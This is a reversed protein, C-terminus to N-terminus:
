EKWAGQERKRRKYGSAALVGVGTVGLALLSAMPAVDLSVGTASVAEASNTFALTQTQNSAVTVTKPTTATQGDTAVTEAAGNNISVTSSTRANGSLGTERVAVQSGAPIEALTVSQDHKLQVTAVGQDNFAVSSVAGEAAFTKGALDACSLEFTFSQDVNAASGTVSKSVSLSGSQPVYHAYYTTNQTITGDFNAKHTCAEDKYWGDFQYTVGDVTKTEPVETSSPKKLESESYGNNVRQAYNSLVGWESEGVDKLAYNVTYVNEENLVIVNDYHFTTKSTTPNYKNAGANAGAAVVVRAPELTYYGQKLSNESGKQAYKYTKGKWTIDPCLGPAVNSGVSPMDIPEYDSTSITGYYQKNIGWSNKVKYDEPAKVANIEGVGMGFWKEDEPAPSDLAYDPVLAYWYLNYTEYTGNAVAMPEDAADAAVAPDAQDATPEAADAKEAPAAAQDDAAQAQDGVSVKAQDQASSEVQAQEAAKVDGTQEGDAALAAVPLLGVVLM